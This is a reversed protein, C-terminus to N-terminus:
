QSITLVSVHEWITTANQSAMYGWSPFDTKFALDLAVDTHGQQCFNYCHVNIALLFLAFLVLFPKRQQVVGVCM